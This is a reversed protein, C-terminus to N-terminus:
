TYMISESMATSLYVSKGPSYPNVFCRLRYRALKPFLGAVMLKQGVQVITQQM